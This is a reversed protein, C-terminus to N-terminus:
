ENVYEKKLGEEDIELLHFSIDKGDEGMGESLLKEITARANPLKTVLCLFGGGGAGTLSAGYIHERVLGLMKSVAPPEAGTAM